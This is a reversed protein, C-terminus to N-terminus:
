EGAKRVNANYYERLVAQRTREDVVGVRWRGEGRRAEVVRRGTEGHTLAWLSKTIGQGPYAVLGL